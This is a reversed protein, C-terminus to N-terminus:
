VDGASPASAAVTGGYSPNEAPLNEQTTRDGPSDLVRCLIGCAFILGLTIWLLTTVAFALKYTTIQCYEPGRKYNPPYIPYTWVSGLPFQNQLIM